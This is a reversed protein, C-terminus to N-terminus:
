GKVSVVNDFPLVTNAKNLFGFILESNIFAEPRWTTPKNCTSLFRDSGDPKLNNPDAGKMPMILIGARDFDSNADDWLIEGDESYGLWDLVHCLIVPSNQFVLSRTVPSPRGIMVLTRLRLTELIPVLLYRSRGNFEEHISDNFLHKFFQSYEGHLVTRLVRLGYRFGATKQLLEPIQALATDLPGDPAPNFLLSVVWHAASESLTERNGMAYKYTTQLERMTSIAESFEMNDLLLRSLMVLAEQKVRYQARGLRGMGAILKRLQPEQDEEMEKIRNLKASAQETSSEEKKEDVEENKPPRINLHRKAFHKVVYPQLDHDAHYNLLTQAARSPKWSIRAKRFPIPAPEERPPPVPACAPTIDDSSATQQNEVPNVKDEGMVATPPPAAATAPKPVRVPAVDYLKEVQSGSFVVEPIITPNENMFNKGTASPICDWTTSLLKGMDNYHWYTYIIERQVAGVLRDERKHAENLSTTIWDKFAQPVFANEDMKAFEKMAKEMIDEHNSKESKVISSSPARNEEEDEERKEELRKLHEKGRDHSAKAAGDALFRECIDCWLDNGQPEHERPKKNKKIRGGRVHKRLVGKDDLEYGRQRKRSFQRPRPDAGAQFNTMPPLPVNRAGYNPRHRPDRYNNGRYGGGGGRHYGRGRWSSGGGGGRNGRYPAM